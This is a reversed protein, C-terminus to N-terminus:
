DDSVWSAMYLIEWGNGLANTFGRTRTALDVEAHVAGGAFAALIADCMRPVARGHPDFQVAAKKARRSTM